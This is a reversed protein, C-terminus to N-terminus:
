IITWGGDAVIVQGTIYRAADSALFVLVPTLDDYTALRRMPIRRITNQLVAPDAFREENMPSIFYGPALANVTVDYRAWEAALARTLQIVGGKAAGYAGLLPVAVLGVVSVVNIIRGGGQQLMQKGASQACLFTGHLNTEVVRRWEEETLDSFLKEVAVGANNILIDLRPFRTTAQEFLREVDAAQSIDTQVALCRRGKDEVAAAVELLAQRNRAAIVVDCGVDALALAAEKGLGGSAGTVIATRGELSFVSLDM